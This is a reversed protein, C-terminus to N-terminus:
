VYFSGCCKTPSDDKIQKLCTCKTPSQVQPNAYKDQVLCNSHDIAQNLHAYCLDLWQQYEQKIEGTVNRLRQSLQNVPHQKTHEEDENQTVMTLPSLHTTKTQNEHMHASNLLLHNHM